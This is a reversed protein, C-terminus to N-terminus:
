VAPLELEASARLIRGLLKSRVLEMLAVSPQAQLLRSLVFMVKSGLAQVPNTTSPPRETFRGVASPVLCQGIFFFVLDTKPHRLAKGPRYHFGM